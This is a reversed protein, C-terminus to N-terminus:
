MHRAWPSTFFPDDFFPSYGFGFPDLEEQGRGRGRRGGAGPAVGFPSAFSFPGGGAGGMMHNMRLMADQQMRAMEAHMLAFPSMVEDNTYLAPPAYNHSNTSREKGKGTSQGRNSPERHRHRRHHDDNDDPEEVIPQTAAKPNPTHPTPQEGDVEEEVVTTVYPRHHRSNAGMHMPPASGSTSSYVYMQQQVFGEKGDKKMRRQFSPDDNSNYYFGQAQAGTREDRTYFGKAGTQQDVTTEYVNGNRNVKGRSVALSEGGDHRKHTENAHTERVAVTAHPSVPDEERSHRRSSSGSHHGRHTEHHSTM